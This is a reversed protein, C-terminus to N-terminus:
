ENTVSGDEDDSVFELHNHWVWFASIDAPPDFNVSSRNATLPMSVRGESGRPVGLADVLLRVREGVRTKRRIM